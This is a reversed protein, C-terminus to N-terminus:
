QRRVFAEGGYVGDRDAYDFRTDSRGLYLRRGTRSRAYSRIVGRLMQHSRALAIRTVVYDTGSSRPLIARYRKRGAGSRVALFNTWMARRNNPRSSIDVAVDSSTTTRIVAKPALGDGSYARASTEQLIRCRANLRPRLFAYEHGSVSGRFRTRRTFSRRDPSAVSRRYRGARVLVEGLSLKCASLLSKSRKGNGVPSRRQINSSIFWPADPHGIGRDPDLTWSHRHPERTDVRQEPKRLGLSGRRRWRRGGV